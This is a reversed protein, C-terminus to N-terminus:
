LHVTIRHIQEFKREIREQIMPFPDIRITEFELRSLMYELRHNTDVCDCKASIMYVIQGLRREWSGFMLIM